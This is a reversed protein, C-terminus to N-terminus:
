RYIGPKGKNDQLIEKKVAESDSYIKVPSVLIINGVLRSIGLDEGQEMSANSSDSEDFLM